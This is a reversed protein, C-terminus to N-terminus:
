KEKILIMTHNERWGMDPSKWLNLPQWSTCDISRERNPAIDNVAGLMFPFQNKGKRGRGQSGPSRELARLKPVLNMSAGRLWLNLAWGVSGRVACSSPAMPETGGVVQVDPPKKRIRKGSNWSCLGLVAKAAPSRGSLMRPVGPCGPKLAWFSWETVGSHM